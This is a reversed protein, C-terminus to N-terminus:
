LSFLNRSSKFTLETFANKDITQLIASVMYPVQMSSKFALVIVFPADSKRELLWIFIVM